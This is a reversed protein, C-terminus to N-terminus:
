RSEKQLLARFKQTIIIAMTQRGPNTLRPTGRPRRVDYVDMIEQAAEDSARQIVADLGEGLERCRRELAIVQARTDAASGISYSPQMVEEFAQQRDEATPKITSENSM